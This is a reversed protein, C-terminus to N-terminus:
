YRRSARSLYTKLILKLSRKGKTTKFYRERRRADQESIFAEYFILNINKMRKTTWVKKQKHEKIRRKLDSTFGCYIKRNEGILLYVYYM